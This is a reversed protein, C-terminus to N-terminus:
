CHRTWYMDVLMGALPYLLFCLDQVICLVFGLYSVNISSSSIAGFLIFGSSYLTSIHAFLSWLVVRLAGGSCKELPNSPINNCLYRNHNM